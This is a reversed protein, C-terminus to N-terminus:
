RKKLAAYKRGLAEMNDFYRTFIEEINGALARSFFPNPLIGRRFWGWHIPNAYPVKSGGARVIVRRQQKAVRISSRLAGTKVPVLSRAESAVIEGAEAGAQSIEKAPVGILKLTRITENLGSVRISDNKAM